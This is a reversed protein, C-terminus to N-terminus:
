DGEKGNYTLKPTNIIEEESWGERFRRYISSKSLGTIKMLEDINKNNNINDKKNNNQETYNVWRCNEKTYNGESNIRDITLDDSYGEKMDEWFGEFTEWKKDYTIGKGGYYEYRNCKPNNCRNKIQQWIRYQRTKSMGHTKNQEATTKLLNHKKLERRITHDSSNLKKMMGKITLGKKIYLKNLLDYNFTRKNIFVM